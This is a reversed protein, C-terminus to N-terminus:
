KEKVGDVGIRDLIWHFADWAEKSDDFRYGFECPDSLAKKIRAREADVGMAYADEHLLYDPDEKELFPCRTHTWEEFTM